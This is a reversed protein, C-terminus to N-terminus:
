EIALAKKQMNILKGIGKRALDLMEKLEEETFPRKEAAGQIEVLNGDATMIVNMDVEARSDEDYDLDLVPKSDVLGVSVAAVLTHLPNSKLKGEEVLGKLAQYLAIVAGNVSACRTGGDAQLVDCDLIVTREGLTTLDICMRLARGILRSIELARSNPKGTSRERVQRKHTSRPLMGYEATVWGQGKGELFPPVKEEVTAACLVVTKGMSFLCSGEANALYGLKFSVPRLATRVKKKEPVKDGKM